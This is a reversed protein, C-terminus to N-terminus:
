LDSAKIEVCSVPDHDILFYNATPDFRITEGELTLAVNRQPGCRL